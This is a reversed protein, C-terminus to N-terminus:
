ELNLKKELQLKTILYYVVVYFLNMLVLLFGLAFIENNQLANNNIKEILDPYLFSIILIIILNVLQMGVYLGLGFVVSYTIKSNNHSHGLAIAAFILLAYVLYALSIFLCTGIIFIFVPINLFETLSNIFVKVSEYENGGYLAIMFSVVGIILSIIFCILLSMVKSLLLKNKTVPLTHTLYSSDKFTNKYYRVISVFFTYCMMAIILFMLAISTFSVLFNVIEAYNSVFDLLKIIIVLIVIAIYLPVLSKLLSKLDYKLLKTLM